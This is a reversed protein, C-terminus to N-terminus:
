WGGGYGQGYRMPGRWAFPNRTRLETEDFEPDTAVFRGDQVVPRDYRQLHAILWARLRDAQGAYADEEIVNHLTDPDADLDFLQEVGGKSYYVYRLKGDTAFLTCNDTPGYEGGVIRDVPDASALIPLLSIGDVDDGPELGALDLLTPTLDASLVPTDVEGGPRALSVWEPFRAVLPVDVSGQLYTIKGWLGHDGLHEGHDSTFIIVTDDYLGRSRLEGLFRGLCYDIHSVQGYYRRRSERVMEDTLNDYKLMTRRMRFMAPEAETDVWDGYVPDPISFNDYMRDYPPPPDFPSHPAEFVMWLFFPHEPDRQQLFRIGQDIIWHTHSYHAPTPYTAPYVENGGLGHGRYFGGYGQEELWVVYDDPHLTIHEFGYRARDPIFHMKGVAKTQYGAERSLRAPLTRTSDIPPRTSFNHPQGFRSAVQGTLMTMRQPMCVPCEVHAHRFAVGEAAIQDVHPTMVPHRGRRYGVCDGRWQDATILVINPRPADM